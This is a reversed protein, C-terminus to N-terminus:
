VVEVRQKRNPIGRSTYVDNLYPWKAFTVGDSGPIKTAGNNLRTARSSSLIIIENYSM